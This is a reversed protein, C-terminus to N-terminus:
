WSADVVEAGGVCAVGGVGLGRAVDNRDGHLRWPELRRLGLSLWLCCAKETCPFSVAWVVVPADAVRGEYQELIPWWYAYLGTLLTLVLLM